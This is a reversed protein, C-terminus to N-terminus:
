SNKGAEIFFRLRESLDVPSTEWKDVILSVIAPLAREVKLVCKTRILRDSRHFSWSDTTFFPEWLQLEWSGDSFLRFTSDGRDNESTRLELGEGWPGFVCDSATLMGVVMSMIRKIRDRAEDIRKSGRELALLDAETYM